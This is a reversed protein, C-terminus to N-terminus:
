NELWLEQKQDGFTFGSHLYARIKATRECETFAGVM